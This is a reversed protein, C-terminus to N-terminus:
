DKQQLTHNWAPMKAGGRRLQPVLGREFDDTSNNTDQLIPTGDSRESVKKRVVSTSSYTAGVWTMGADLMGPLRKKNIANENDGAEVADLVYKVPIKAYIKPRKSSLDSAQLSTDNVPDYSQGEPVRFIIYASGFVPTLYQPLRGMESKGDYFIHEMDYAPQDPYRANNVNFEFESSSGDVPSDPNYIPLQHNAAFQSIVCSEGPLLPYDTGNGPIRWLRESYIYKGADEEPWVPMKTTAKGPHAICFYIGDLFIVEESNNYLEYFQNRFYFKPTGSYFIEKFVLPSSWGPFLEIDIVQGDKLLSLNQQSGHFFFTEGMADKAEGSINVSYIGPLVGAVETNMNAVPLQYTVKENVNTFHIQLDGFNKLVSLDSASRIAVTVEIPEVDEIKLADSFRSCSCLLIVVLVAALIDRINKEKCM